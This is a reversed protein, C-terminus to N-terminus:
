NLTFYHMRNTRIACLCIKWKSNKNLRFSIPQLNFLIRINLPTHFNLFKKRQFKGDVWGEM